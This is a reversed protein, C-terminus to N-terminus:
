RISGAMAWHPTVRTDHERVALGPLELCHLPWGSVRIESLASRTEGKTVSVAQWQVGSKSTPVSGLLFNSPKETVKKRKPPHGDEINYKDM